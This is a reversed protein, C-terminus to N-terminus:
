RLIGRTNFSWYSYLLATKLAYARTRQFKIRTLRVQGNSSASGCCRREAGVRKRPLADAAIASPSRGQEYELSSGARARESFVSCFPVFISFPNLRFVLLWCSIGVRKARDYWKQVRLGGPCGSLVACIIVVSLQCGDRM